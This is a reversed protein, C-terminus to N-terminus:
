SVSSIIYASFFWYSCIFFYTDILWVSRVLGSNRKAVSKWRLNQLGVMLTRLDIFSIQVYTDKGNTLGEGREHVKTKKLNSIYLIWLDWQAHSITLRFACIVISKCTLGRVRVGQLIDHVKTEKIPLHKGCIPTNAFSSRKWSSICFNSLSKSRLFVLLRSYNTSHGVM